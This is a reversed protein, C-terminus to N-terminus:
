KDFPLGEDDLGEPINMFGDAGAAGSAPASPAASQMAENPTRGQTQAAPAQRQAGNLRADAEAKSEAFEFRDVICTNTYYRVGNKEYSGTEWRGEINIKSARHLMKEITEATKSFAKCQIFDADRSGDANTRDRDVALTFRAITMTGDASYRVEPDATLRANTLLVKNM